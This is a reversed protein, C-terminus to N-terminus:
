HFSLSLHPILFSPHPEFIHPLANEPIGIGTDKVQIFTRDGKVLLQLQVKGHAPTYRYANSLLNAVAQRLLNPDSMVWISHKPLDCTFTLHQSVAQPRLEAAIANLVTVLDTPQFSEQLSVGDHRM